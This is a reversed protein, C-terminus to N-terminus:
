GNVYSDITSEYTTLIGQIASDSGDSKRVSSAIAKATDWWDGPYQGQMVAYQNQARLATLAVDAVVAPDAQAQLNSPGWGNSNYRALQAEKGSLTRALSQVFANKEANTQPKVGMLKCGTFSGLHHSEEGVKVAPLEACGMNEGLATKVNASDWTGSICVAGAINGATDKSFAKSAASGSVYVNEEKMLEYMAKCAKIGNASNYTDTYGTFQGATNTTWTSECGFAYFYSANYWASGELEFHITKGAAKCRAILKTMDKLDEPDTIVSKDYYMFYGNDSTLPYAVLSDGVCAAGYSVSDNEAKVAAKLNADTIEQLAGASKLRALQDQAFCYIDAGAQVDTIMNSAADGEGVAQVTVGIDKGDSEKIAAAWANAQQQTLDKVAEAAWVKIEIDHKKTGGGKGGSQCAALMSMGLVCALVSKMMFRKNM